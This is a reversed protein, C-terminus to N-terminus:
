EGSAADASDPTTTDDVILAEDWLHLQAQWGTDPDEILNVVEANARQPLGQKPDQLLALVQKETPKKEFRFPGFMGDNIRVTAM